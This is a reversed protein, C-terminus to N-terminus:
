AQQRERLAFRADIKKRKARIEVLIILKSSLEEKELLTHVDSM